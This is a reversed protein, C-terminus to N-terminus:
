NVTGVFVCLIAIKFSNFDHMNGGHRKLRQANHNRCQNHSQDTDASNLRKQSINRVDDCFTQLYAPIITTTPYAITMLM